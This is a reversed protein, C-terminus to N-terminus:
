SPFNLLGSLRSDSYSYEEQQEIKISSPDFDYEKAEAAARIEDTIPDVKPKVDPKSSSSTPTDNGGKGGEVQKKLGASVLSSSLVAAVVLVAAASVCAIKEVGKVPLNAKAEEEKKYFGVFAAVISAILIIFLIVLFFMNLSYNGGNYEVNNLKGVIFDPIILIEKYLALGFMVAAVIQVFRYQPVILVAIEVVFGALLFIGITEPVLGEAKNGMPNQHFIPDLAPNKYTAFFIIAVILSLLAVGAVIFYGVSKTKIFAVFKKFFEKM